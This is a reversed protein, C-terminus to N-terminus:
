VPRKGRVSVMLPALALEDPNDALAEIRSRLKPDLLGAQEALPMLFQQTRTFSNLMDESGGTGWHTTLTADVDVLGLAKMSLPLRLPFRAIDLGRKDLLALIATWMAECAEPDTSAKALQEPSYIWAADEVFLWGGPKLADTLRALVADRHPLHTFVARAHIVDYRSLEVTDIDGIVVTVPAALDALFRGDVDVATVSGTSGIQECMWRAISGGGAGVELCHHGETVLSSLLSITTPDLAREIGQLRDREADLANSAMVYPTDM